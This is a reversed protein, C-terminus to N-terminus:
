GRLYFPDDSSDILSLIEDIDYPFDIHITKYWSRFDECLFPFQSEKIERQLEVWRHKILDHVMDGEAYSTIRKDMKGLIYIAMQIDHFEKFLTFSPVVEVDRLLFADNFCRIAGPVEGIESLLQGMKYLCEASKKTNSGDQNSLEITCIHLAQRYYKESGIKM